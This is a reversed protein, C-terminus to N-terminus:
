TIKKAARKRLVSLFEPTMGLYSAIQKLPMRQAFQPYKKLFNAYREEASLSLNEIVRMQERIYANQMVIRFFREFKPINKYLQDLNNRHLQLVVSDEIADISMVAPQGTVFSYMDTVWWDHIAFMVINEDGNDGSHFARLAGHHVYNIINCPQGSNFVTEKKRFEKQVLMSTFENLEDENLTIHRSINQIIGSYDMSNNFIVVIRCLDEESSGFFLATSLYQM